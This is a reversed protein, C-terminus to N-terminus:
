GNSASNMLGVDMEMNLFFIRMGEDFMFRVVM